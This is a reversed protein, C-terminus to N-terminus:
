HGAKKDDPTVVRVQLKGGDLLTVLKDLRADISKLQEIMQSQQAGTDPIQAFARNPSGSGTWQGMLILTQLVLVLTLARSTSKM